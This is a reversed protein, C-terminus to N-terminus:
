AWQKLSQEVMRLRRSILPSEQSLFASLLGVQNTTDHVPISIMINELFNILESWPM